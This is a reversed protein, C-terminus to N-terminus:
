KAGTIAGILSDSFASVTKTEMNRFSHAYVNYIMELTNGLRDAIDPPPILANILITAHTHRLGHPTINKLNIKNVKLHNYLKRFFVNLYTYYVPEGGSLIFVLDDDTLKDGCSFKEQKCWKKYVKITNMVKTDVEITRYSNETKPTRRNEYDRTAEVTITNEKFNIESWKLAYAEGSRLGSYALLYTMTWETKNGLKKAYHLFTNLDKPELFNELSKNYRIKINSFRNRVIMEENVAFNVATKFTAHFARLTGQSYGEESLFNLFDREYTSAKLTSVKYHGILNNIARIGQKHNKITTIKWNRKKTEFWIELLQSVTMQSYEIQTTNGDMLDVKVKLLDRVADEETKFGSKKKEKRKGLANYYKHRYMYRKQGSKTFYYYVENEKTKHLKM